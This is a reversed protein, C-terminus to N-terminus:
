TLKRYKKVINGALVRGLVDKDKHRTKDQCTTELQKELVAHELLKEQVDVPIRRGAVIARVERRPTLDKGNDEMKRVRALLRYYKKKYVDVLRTLKTVKTQLKENERYVKAQNKKVIKKGQQKQRSVPRIPLKQSNSTSVLPFLRKPKHISQVLKVGPKAKKRKGGCELFAKVNENVKRKRINKM